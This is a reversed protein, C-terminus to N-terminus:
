YRVRVGLVFRRDNQFWANPTLINRGEPSEEDTVQQRLVTKTNLLNSGQLSVEVNDTARVRISGDLFGASEQWVPLLVCCDVATVLYDSRWNYALRAAIPGKEYMGVLNFAHKSLGELTGPNLATNNSGPSTVDGGASVTNLNANPVGKNQIYTYNAQVGFGDFPSPLFDFFRQYAVELGKIRAGSGNAPGRVLASRTVGDRTVEREFSGYQIYDAFRKHFLALSFSGVNAFYNELTLDFQWATTPKLFPNFANANYTPNVGVITGSSNKVWREDTLDIGLPLGQSVSTFNKLLGIDPRSMARSAAFRILWKESLDVRLNFSPLFHHHTAKAVSEEGGGAAFSIDEASLYCYAPFPASPPQGPPPSSPTGTGTYGGPVLPTPPCLATNHNATPYRLFGRSKNDTRVYRLGVNGSIGLGGVRTGAGGFRLVAYAANTRESVDAIEDATFCSDELETPRDCIPIFQGVGINNRSYENVRGSEMADFPVFPFQGLSGGFFNNGFSSVEYLGQPYGTFDGSGQHRDLNWYPANDSTWTNSINTWNYTSWQVLQSRDAHRVGVKISDMWSTGLDYEADARLAYQDGESEELHDMVGRVYWNNPNATGGASQNVNTPPLFSMRPYKGTADVFVDAFSGHEVTIDYNDVESDVYQADFNLRLRDSVEWKLNIAADQTMNRNRNFRSLAQIETAWGSRGGPCGGTWDYCAPFMPEGNQNVAIGANTPPGCVDEFSGGWPTDGSPCGWWGAADPRVITGSQFNGNSDFTFDPTGSAPKPIAFSREGGPTLRFRVDTAWLDFLYAGVVRERWSNEYTSRNFQATVLFKRDVSRWQGALAFGLRERDYLTERNWVQSPMFVTGPGFADELVGMRGFQIGQTATQVESYAVNGMIGFEGLNTDWRNSYFASGEPTIKKSLDGYNLNVTAQILQGPADFPVRTRLNISGAIGGEIMDATQNKYTDVGAMLEPSIDGWSLGRSSNASFTDRGNFESRVQPLGRVLVGSPEASFHSTDSTAAFRNVTIGPVRQLAEAVSKDPFAGIDTATISDVVTDANRKIGQSTQLARRQGTVIIAGEESADPSEADPDTQASLPKTEEAPEAAPAEQANAVSPAVLQLMAALAMASAGSNLIGATMSSRQTSM